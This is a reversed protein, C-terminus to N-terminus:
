SELHAALGQYGAGARRSEEFFVPGTQLGKEPMEAVRLSLTTLSTRLHGDLDLPLVQEGM